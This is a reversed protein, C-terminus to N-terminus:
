YRYTHTVNLVGNDDPDRYPPTTVEVRCQPEGDFETLHAADFTALTLDALDELSHATKGFMQVSFRRPDNGRGDLTRLEPAMRASAIVAYPLTPKSPVSGFKYARDIGGAVALDILNDIDSM